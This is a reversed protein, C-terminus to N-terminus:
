TQNRLCPLFTWTAHRGGFKTALCEQLSSLHSLPLPVPQEELPCSDSDWFGFSLECGGAVRTQHYRLGDETRQSSQINMHYVYMCAFYEYVHVCLLSLINFVRMKRSQFCGHFNNSFSIFYCYQFLLFFFGCVLTNKVM